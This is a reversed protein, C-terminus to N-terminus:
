WPLQSRETKARSIERTVDGPVRARGLDPIFLLAATVMLVAMLIGLTRHVWREGTSFRSLKAPAAAADSSLSM